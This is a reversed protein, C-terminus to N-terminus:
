LRRRARHRVVSAVAFTAIGEGAGLPGLGKATTSKVSVRDEAIRLVKALATRMAPIHPGIKPAEAVVTADVNNPLYGHERVLAVMRELLLLSSIGM